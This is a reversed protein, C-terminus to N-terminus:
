KETDIAIASNDNDESLTRRPKEILIINHAKKNIFNSDNHHRVLKNADPAVYDGIILALGVKNKKSVSMYNSLSSSFSQVSRKDITGDIIKIIIGGYKKLTEKLDNHIADNSTETKQLVHDLDILVDFSTRQQQHQHQGKGNKARRDFTVDFFDNLNNKSAIYKRLPEGIQEVVEAIARIAEEKTKDAMAISMGSRISNEEFVNAWKNLLKRSKLLMWFAALLAALSIAVLGAIIIDTMDDNPLLRLYGGQQLLDIIAFILVAAVIGIVIIFNKGTVRVMKAAKYAYRTSLIPSLSHEEEEQEQDDVEEKNHM